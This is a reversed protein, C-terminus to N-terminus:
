APLIEFSAQEGPTLPEDDNSFKVSEGYKRRVYGSVRRAEAADTVHRVKVSVEHGQLHLLGENRAMFNRPWHRDLGGGSRIYLRGDEGPSIWITVRNPKGTARGHTTLEVERQGAAVAVVEPSFKSM